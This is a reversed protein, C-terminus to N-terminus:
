KAPVVQTKDMQAMALRIWWEEARARTWDAAGSCKALADALERASTPRDAPNKALCRILLNELDPVVPKGLRESPKAPLEKVQKMLVEGLTACDFLPWGTVLFYGVAGLSYIDARADVRDPHEVAEPSMYLPTGLTTNAGTLDLQGDMSRAKVLGFDLVKVFDPLGGRRTLFVNAPKIDRHVLGIGHAEALSGCMQSLIFIVRCEPQPGYNKVLKDLTM